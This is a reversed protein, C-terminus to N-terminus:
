DVNSDVVSSSDDDEDDHLVSSNICLSEVYEVSSVLSSVFSNEDVYSPEPSSPLPEVSTGLEVSEDLSPDDADSPDVSDPVSEVDALEPDLSFSLLLSYEDDLSAELVSPDDLETPADSLVLSSDVEVLSDDLSDVLSSEDLEDSDLLSDVLGSDASVVSVVSDLVSSDVSDLLSEDLVSLELVSAAVSLLEELSALEDLSVLEDLVSLSVSADEPLVSLVSVVSLPCDVSLELSILVSVVLESVDDDDESPDVSSLEDLSVEAVSLLSAVSLVSDVDSDEVSNEDDSAVDSLSLVLSNLEDDDVSSSIQPVVGYVSSLIM